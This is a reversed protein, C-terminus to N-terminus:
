SRTADNIEMFQSLLDHLRGGWERCGDDTLLLDNRVEILSHPIERKEACVPIYWDSEDDIRYPENDGITMTPWLRAALRLLDAGRSKEHRYLFGIDWPRAQDNLLPTFSHISYTYQVSQRAIQAKCATAFPEFIESIRANRDSSTQDRNGPIVVRDSVAPISQDSEPPRNCDLVLRSYRQLILTCDLSAALNRALKESGIDYAIHMALQEDTLGLAGLKRPIAQGAHECVLLIPSTSRANVVEVPEPDAQRNLLTESASSTLSSHLEWEVKRGKVGSGDKCFCKILILIFITNSLKKEFQKDRSRPSAFPVDAQM